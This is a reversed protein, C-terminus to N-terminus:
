LLILHNFPEQITLLIAPLRWVEVIVLLIEQNLKLGTNVMITTAKALLFAMQAMIALILNVLICTDVLLALLGLCALIVVVAMSCKAETKGGVKSCGTHKNPMLQTM